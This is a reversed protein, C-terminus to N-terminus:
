AACRKEVRTLIEDAIDDVKIVVTRALDYGHTISKGQIAIMDGAAQELRGIKVLRELPWAAVKKHWKEVRKSRNVMSTKMTNKFKKMKVIFSRQLGESEVGVENKEEQLDGTMTKLSAKKKNEPMEKESTM